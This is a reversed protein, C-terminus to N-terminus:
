DKDFLGAYAQKKKNPKASYNFGVSKRQAPKETAVAFKAKMSNAYLLDVKDTLEDVTYKEADEVLKKFEETERIGDYIENNFIEDKAERM